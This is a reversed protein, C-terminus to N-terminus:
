FRYWDTPVLRWEQYRYFSQWNLQLWICTGIQIYDPIITYTYHIVYQNLQTQQNEVRRAKNTSSFKWIKGQLTATVDKTQYKLSKM